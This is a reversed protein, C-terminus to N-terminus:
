AAARDPLTVTLATRWDPIFFTKFRDRPIRIYPDNSGDTDGCHRVELLPFCNVLRSELWSGKFRNPVFLVDAPPLADAWFCGEFERGPTADRVVYLCRVGFWFSEHVHVALPLAEVALNPWAGTLTKFELFLACRGAGHVAIRDARTRAVLATPDDVHKLWDTVGAARKREDDHYAVSEVRYGNERCWNTVDAEIAGHTPNDPRAAPTM